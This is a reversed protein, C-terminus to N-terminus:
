KMKMLRMAKEMRAIEDPASNKKLVDIIQEAEKQSFSVSRERSRQSLSMLFTLMERPSLGAGESVLMQLFDLKAPDIDALAPDHKWNPQTM